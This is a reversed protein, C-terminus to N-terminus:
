VCWLINAQVISQVKSLHVEEQEKRVQGLRVEQLLPCSQGLLSLLRDSGGRPHHQLQLYSSYFFKEKLVGGVRSLFIGWRSVVVTVLFPSHVFLDEVSRM